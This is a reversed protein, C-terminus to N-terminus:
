KKVAIIGAQDRNDKNVYGSYIVKFGAEKLRAKLIKPEFFLFQGFNHNAGDPHYKSVNKMFGPYKDGNKKRKRYEKLFSKYVKIYPTGITIYLRGGKILLGCLRKLAHKFQFPTMYHLVQACLINSFLKNKIKKLDPLSDHILSFNIKNRSDAIKNLLKNAIEIHKKEKDVGVINKKGKNILEHLVAGMGIGVELAIGDNTIADKCFEESVLCLFNRMYGTKNYTKVNGNPLVEVGANKLERNSFVNNM